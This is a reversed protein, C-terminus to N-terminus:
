KDKQIEFMRFSLLFILFFQIDQSCSNTASPGIASYGSFTELQPDLFIKHEICKPFSINTDRLLIKTELHEYVIINQKTKIHFIYPLLTMLVKKPENKPHRHWQFLVLIYRSATSARKIFQFANKM